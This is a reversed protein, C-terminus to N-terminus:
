HHWFFPFRPIIRMPVVVPYTPALGLRLRELNIRRQEEARNQADKFQAARQAAAQQQAYLRDNREASAIAQNSQSRFEREQAQAQADLRAHEAAAEDAAARQQQAAIAQQRAAEVQQAALESEAALRRQQIVYGGAFLAFVLLGALVFPKSLGPGREDVSVPYVRRQTAQQVTVQRALKRDHAARSDPDSLVKYADMVEVLQDAFRSDQAMKEPTYAARAREFAEKVDAATANGPIGLIKYASNM